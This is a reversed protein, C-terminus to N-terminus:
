QIYKLDGNTVDRYSVHLRGSEEVALASFAGVGNGDVAVVQWSSAADCGAACTAYMLLGEDFAHYTVHLRKGADASLATYGVQGAAAAVPVARWSAPADCDVACTAYKLRGNELDSYVIHGRGGADVAVDAFAGVRGADDVTVAQWNAAADCNVACTAYKLDGNDWDFYGVHVRGSADVALATFGGVFGATDVAVARWGGAADCGAACTAYKLNGNSYDFYSVHRRGTGDVALAPFAGVDGGTDVAAVQWSGVADCGGACTAYMLDLDGEGQYSVHVRGSADVNLASYVPSGAEEVAVAQWSGVADCDAACTAYRLRRNDFDVYSIHRRGGGDVALDAFAGVDGAADVTVAQWPRTTFSWLRSAVLRAGAPTRIGTTVAIQYTRGPLLPATSRVARTAEDYSLAAVLQAGGAVRVQFTAATLTTPDIAQNFAVAVTAGTEVETAGTAPSLSTIALPDSPAPGWTDGCAALLM